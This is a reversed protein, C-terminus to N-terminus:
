LVYNIEDLILNILSKILYFLVNCLVPTIEFYANDIDNKIKYGNSNTVANTPVSVCSVVLLVIVMGIPLIWTKKM